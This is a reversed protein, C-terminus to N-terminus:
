VRSDEQTIDVNRLGFEEVSHNKLEKVDEDVIM